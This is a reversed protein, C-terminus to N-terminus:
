AKATQPQRLWSVGRATLEEEMMRYVHQRLLPVEQLSYGQVSVEPLFIARSRGPNLSFVSSTHMRDYVDLLLVPLIPTGTEIAIRFAGDYFEKLAQGTENFTGEPFVLVSIGKRLISKLLQVSKARNGASSRDVTVIANKYITGFIPVGALEAKGLPRVLMRFVKPIMAADLYTNHNAVFIYSRRPDPKQLYINRHRIFILFFWVDAWVRCARYVLNGGRIRGFQVAVVSWIFVPIMLVFFLLFAYLVYVVRLPLLLYRKM